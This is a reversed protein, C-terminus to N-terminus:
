EVDDMTLPEGYRMVIRAVRQNRVEDLTTSVGQASRRLEELLRERLTYVKEPQTSNRGLAVLGKEPVAMLGFEDAFFEFTFTLRRPFAVNIRLPVTGKFWRMASGALWSGIHDEAAQFKTFNGVPHVRGLGDIAEVAITEIPLPAKQLQLEM